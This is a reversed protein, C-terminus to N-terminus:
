LTPQSNSTAAAKSQDLAVSLGNIAVGNSHASDVKGNNAKRNRLHPAVYVWGTKNLPAAMNNNGAKKKKSRSPKKYPPNLDKNAHGTNPQPSRTLQSPEVASAPHAAAKGRAKRRPQKPQNPFEAQQALWSNHDETAVTSAEEGALPKWHPRGSPPKALEQQTDIQLALSTPLYSALSL